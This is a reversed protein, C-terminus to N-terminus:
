ESDYDIDYDSDIEDDSFIITELLIKFNHALKSFLSVPSTNKQIKIPHTPSKNIVVFSDTTFCSPYLIKSPISRKAESLNNFTKPTFIQENNYKKTNKSYPQPKDIKNSEYVPGFKKKNITKRNIRRKKYGYQNKKLIQNKSVNNKIEEISRDFITKWYAREFNIISQRRINQKEKLEDLVLSYIM